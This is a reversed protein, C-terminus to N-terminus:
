QQITLANLAAIALELNRDDPESTNFRQLFRGLINFPFIKYIYNIAFIAPMVPIHIGTLEITIYGILSYTILAGIRMTGCHNNIRSYRRAEEITPVRGLNEYATFVMHEAGHNKSTENKDFLRDKLYFFVITLILCELIAFHTHVLMGQPNTISCLEVLVMLSFVLIGIILAIGNIITIIISKKGPKKPPKLSKAHIHGDDSFWAYARGGEASWFDIRKVKSAGESLRLM